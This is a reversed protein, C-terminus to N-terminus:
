VNRFITGNKKRELEMAIGHISEAMYKIFDIYPEEPWDVIDLVVYEPDRIRKIKIDSEPQRLTYNQM